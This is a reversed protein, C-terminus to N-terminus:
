SRAALKELAGRLDVRRAAGVRAWLNGASEFRSFVTRLTFDEPHVDDTLEEWRLPTSVGAFESARASYATALSKGESNQLYDV